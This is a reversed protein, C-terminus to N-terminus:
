ETSKDKDENSRLLQSGILLLAGFLSLYWGGSISVFHDPDFQTMRAGENFLINPIMIFFLILNIIIIVGSVITITRAGLQSSILASVSGLLLILNVILVGPVRSSSSSGDAGERKVTSVPQVLYSNEGDDFSALETRETFSGFLLTILIFIIGAIAATRKWHPIARIIRDDSGEFEKKMERIFMGTSVSLLLFPIIWLYGATLFCVTGPIAAGLLWAMRVNIDTSSERSSRFSSYISFGSLIITLFAMATINEDHGTLSSIGTGSVLQVLGAVMGLGGGISGLKLALIKGPSPDNQKEEMDGPKNNM